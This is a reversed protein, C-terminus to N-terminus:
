IDEVETYLRLEKELLVHYCRGLEEKSLNERIGESFARIVFEKCWPLRTIGKLFSARLAESDSDKSRDEKIKNTHKRKNQKWDAARLAQKAKEAKLCATEFEVRDRWLAGCARGANSEEARSFVARVSEVTGGGREMRKIEFWVGWMWGVISRETQRGSGASMADAVVGRVRDDLRFRAENVAYLSLLITNEPFKRLETELIDRLYAPKYSSRLVLHSKLLRVLSQAHMEAEPSSALNHSQFYSSLISRTDLATELPDSSTLYTLLSQLATAKIATSLDSHALSRDTLSTLYMKARLIATPDPHEGKPYEEHTSVLRRLAEEKEGRQFAEWIWSEFLDLHGPISFADPTKNMSLATRFVLDAKERNGKRSEVLGYANYLPLCSQRSTLLQKATKVVDSPFHRLEFALLYIAIDEAQLRTALLKLVCRVFDLDTSGPTQKLSQDFLLDTTMQFNNVPSNGFECILDAVSQSAPTAESSGNLHYEQIDLRTDQLFPDLWWSSHSVNAYPLQPLHNFCLFAQVLDFGLLDQPLLRLWEDIDSFLVLHYPDDEGIEDTTRGPLRLLSMHNLERRHFLEWKSGTQPEQTLSNIRPPPDSPQNPNFDSWGKAGQEGIRPVESEWFEEFDTITGGDRRLLHFELFAQWIAIALEQYGAEKMMTTMRLMLYLFLSHDSHGPPCLSELADRFTAKCIEYTFDVFNTQVFDLHKIWIDATAPYKVLLEKWKQSIRRTDWLKSAEAMLGLQLTIQNPKNTGIHRLAQEYISLRVEALSRQDSSSLDSASSSRGLLIMSEQHDILDLWAQLDQPHERTRDTLIANRQTTESHSNTALGSIDPGDKSEINSLEDESEAPMDLIRYDKEDGSDASDENRKRKRSKGISIYDLDKELTNDSAAMLVRAPEIDYKKGPKRAFPREQPGGRESSIAIINETTLSRDIRRDTSLGLICGGGYRRYAPVRYRNPIGYTVNEPDGKRDTIYVTNAESFYDKKCQNERPQKRDIPEKPENRHSEGHRRHSSEEDPPRKRDRRTVDRSTEERLRGSHKYGSIRHKQEYNQQQHRSERSPSQERDPRPKPSSPKSRFSAFKPISKNDM